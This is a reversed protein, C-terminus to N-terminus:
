ATAGMLDLSEYAIHLEEIAVIGDKANLTPAKLKVPLCRGLVFRAQPTRAEDAGKVVVIVTARQRQEGTRTYAAFWRWLDFDLTMGRKLVLTGFALPGTLRLQRGNDGGQRLTKVEMNIEMGDCEAFAARCLAASSEGALIEVDFNFAHLPATNM